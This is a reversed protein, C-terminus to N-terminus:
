PRPSCTRGAVTPGLAFLRDACRKAGAFTDTNLVYLEERGDGDLDGAAVGIAQRDPDALVPPAVDVLRGGALQPGPQARRVRHRLVRRGDGDVDTAAVGYSLRPRNDAILHSVDSFVPQAGGRGAVTAPVTRYPGAMRVRSSTAKLVAVSDVVLDVVVLDGAAVPEAAAEHGADVHVGVQGM